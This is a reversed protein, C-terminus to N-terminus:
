EHQKMVEDNVKPIFQELKVQLLRIMEYYCDPHYHTSGSEQTRICAEGKIKDPCAKCTYRSTEPIYDAECSLMFGVEKSEWYNPFTEFFNDLLEANM